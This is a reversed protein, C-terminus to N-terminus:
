SQVRSGHQSGPLHRRVAAIAADRYEADMRRWAQATEPWGGDPTALYTLADGIVSAAAKPSMRHVRMLDAVAARHGAPVTRWARTELRGPFKNITDM